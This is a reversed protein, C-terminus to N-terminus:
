IQCSAFPSGIISSFSSSSYDDEKKIAWSLRTVDLDWFNGVKGFIVLEDDGEERGVM